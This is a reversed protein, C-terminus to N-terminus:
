AHVTLGHHLNSVPKTILLFLGSNVSFAYVICIYLMGRVTRLDLM